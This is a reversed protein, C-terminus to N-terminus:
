VVQKAIFKNKFIQFVEIIFFRNIMLVLVALLINMIDLVYRDFNILAIQILTLALSIFIKKNNWDIVVYKKTNILRYVVVLMYSIFTSFAAGQLNFIPILGFITFIQILLFNLGINSLAGVITSLMNGMNEKAAVYNAGLFSAIISLGAALILFPASQWAIYYENSVLIKMIMKLFAILLSSFVLVTSFLRIYIQTFYQNKDQSTYEKIASLQWSQNFIGITSNLILPIKNAIAYIGTISSGLMYFVIYRDSVNTVWWMLSNVILPFSYIIMNKLLGYNEKKFIDATLYRKGSIIFLMLIAITNSFIFSILYGHIKFKLVVILLINFLAFMVANLMNSIVFAKTNEIGMVFYSIIRYISILAILIIITYAYSGVGNMQKIIPIFFFSIIIGVLGVLLGYSFILSSDNEKSLSFRLVADNISLILIPSLLNILTMIIEIIGFQSKIPLLM